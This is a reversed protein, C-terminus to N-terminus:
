SKHADNRLGLDIPESDRLRSTYPEFQLRVRLETEFEYRICIINRSKRGPYCGRSLGGIAMQSFKGICMACYQGSQILVNWPCIEDWISTGNRPSDAWQAM